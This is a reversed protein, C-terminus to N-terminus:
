PATLLASEVGPLAIYVRRGDHRIEVETGMEMGVVALLQAHLTLMSANGVIKLEKKLCSVTPKFEKPAVYIGRGDTSVWVESGARISLDRMAEGPITIASSGGLQVFKGNRVFKM